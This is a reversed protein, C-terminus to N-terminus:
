SRSQVSECQATEEDAGAIRLGDASNEDGRRRRSAVTRSYGRTKRAPSSKDCVCAEDTSAASEAAVDNHVNHLKLPELGPLADFDSAAPDDSAIPDPTKPLVPDDMIPLREEGVVGSGKGAPGRARKPHTHGPEPGDAVPEQGEEQEQWKADCELEEHEDAALPALPPLPARETLKLQEMNVRFALRLFRSAVGSRDIMANEMRIEPEKEPEHLPRRTTTKSVEGFREMEGAIRLSSALILENREYTMWFQARLREEHDLQGREREQAHAQWREYRQVVRSVTAQSIGMQQAVWHQTMGEFKIWCFVMADRQTPKWPRRRREAIPHEMATAAPPTEVATARDVLVISRPVANM